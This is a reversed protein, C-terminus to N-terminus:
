FVLWLVVIVRACVLARTHIARVVHVIQVSLLPKPQPEATRQTTEQTHQAM